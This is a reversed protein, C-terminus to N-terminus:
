KALFDEVARAFADPEEYFPLHGSQEFVVFRSEPIAQHIQYAGQPAVNMDYRGTVVLTPCHFKKIEPTLDFKEIDANVAENVQKAYASSSFGKLFADRKQTSYFLMALYERLSSDSAAKDGLTEAFAVSEQRDVGEPFVYKFLFPTDKFRPAASDVLILHAIHQPHRAAYAMALFGGWSHGLLDIREAGLHQRLAELDDIQDALTFTAGKKLRASHGTGRQDYFVVKRHGALEDWASSVHLYTHDFGPGGNAVVMPLGSGAGIVEYYITADRTTFYAGTKEQAMCALSGWFALILLGFSKKFISPMTLM